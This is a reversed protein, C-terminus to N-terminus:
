CFSKILNAILKFRTLNNVMKTLYRFLDVYALNKWKSAFKQMDNHSISDKYTQFLIYALETLEQVSNASFVYFRSFDDLAKFM